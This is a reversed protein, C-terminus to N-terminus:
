RVKVAMGGAVKSRQAADMFEFIELTRANEVPPKGTQFFKVIERVLGEYDTHPKAPSM